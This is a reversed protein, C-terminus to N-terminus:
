RYYNVFILILLEKLEQKKFERPEVGRSSVALIKGAKDSKRQGNEWVVNRIYRFNNLM